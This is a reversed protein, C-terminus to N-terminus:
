CLHGNTEGAKWGGPQRREVNWQWRACIWHGEGAQRKKASPYPLGEGGAAGQAEVDGLDAAM